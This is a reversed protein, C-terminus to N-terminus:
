NYKSVHIMNCIHYSQISMLDLVLTRITYTAAFPATNEHWEYIYICMYKYIQLYFIEGHCVSHISEPFRQRLVLTSHCICFGHSIQLYLVWMCCCWPCIGGGGLSMRVFFFVPEGCLNLYAGRKTLKCPIGLKPKHMLLVSNYLM